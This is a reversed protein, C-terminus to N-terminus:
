TANALGADTQAAKRAAYKKLYLEVPIFALPVLSAALIPLWVKQSWQEKGSVALSVALYLMFLVGHLMGLSAVYDRSLVDFTVSLIAVYSLGELLSIARFFSLL